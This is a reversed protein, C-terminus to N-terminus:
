VAWQSRNSSSFSRQGLRTNAQAKPSIKKRGHFLKTKRKDNHHRAPTRDDVPMSMTLGDVSKYELKEGLVKKLSYALGKDEGTVFTFADGTKAARGTRGIRHTYADTTSPMDYNIVHSIGSVDIGRAAIDTAVMIEYRGDRFGDLALQRKQQTLNGHLSTVKYGSKDLQLAVSKARSKTRTFVLVSDMETKNLIDKLLATKNDMKVPYFRHTVTEVPVTHGITINVPNVLLDNALSRIGEPMTASFLMTQRRAPLHKAIKRVDPLFGMDFMHDAEDLVLVELWSLDVTGRNIHDLLRGPCASIIEVHSRLKNIQGNINVGGYISASKLGTRRGLQGIANHTQESLERTPAIILARVHGRPGQMLRQLIPLVFAATKGTGTQALGMVDRGEMIPPISQVQIPTPVKYGCAQVGAIIKANLQFKKFSM